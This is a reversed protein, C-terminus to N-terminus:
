EFHKSIDANGLELGVEILADADGLLLLLLETGM